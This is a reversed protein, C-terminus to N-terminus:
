FFTSNTMLVRTTYNDLNLISLGGTPDRFVFETDSHWTGNFSKWQFRKGLIDNLTLRNGRIRLGEDEPSLLFISFIILSFVAAIVLLAIFIGRWNRREPSIAVLEYM